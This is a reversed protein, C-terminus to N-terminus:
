NSKDNKMMRLISQIVEIKVGFNEESYSSITFFLRYHTSKLSIAEMRHSNKGSEM